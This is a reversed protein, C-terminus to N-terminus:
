ERILVNKCNVDVRPCNLLLQVINSNEHECAIYLIPKCIYLFIFKM